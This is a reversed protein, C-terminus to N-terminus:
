LTFSRLKIKRYINFQRCNIVELISLVSKMHYVTLSFAYNEKEKKKYHAGRIVNNSNALTPSILVTLMFFDFASIGRLGPSHLCALRLISTFFYLCIFGSIFILALMSINRHFLENQIVLCLYKCPSFLQNVMVISNSHININIIHWGPYTM